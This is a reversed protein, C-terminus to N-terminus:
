KDEPCYKVKIEIEISDSLYWGGEDGVAEIMNHLEDVVDSVHEEMSKFDTGFKKNFKECDEKSQVPVNFKKSKEM